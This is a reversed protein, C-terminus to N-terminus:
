QPPREWLSIASNRSMGSPVTLVRVRLASDRKASTRSPSSEHAPWRVEAVEDSVVERGRLPFAQLADVVQEDGGARRGLEGLLEGLRRPRLAAQDLKRTVPKSGTEHEGGREHDRGEREAVEEASAAVVRAGGGDRGRLGRHQALGGVSERDDVDPFAVLVAVPGHLHGDLAEVM